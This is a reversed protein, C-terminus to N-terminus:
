VGAARKSEVREHAEHWEPVAGACLASTLCSYSPIFVTCHFKSSSNVNWHCLRRREVENRPLCHPQPTPRLLDCREANNSDNPWEIAYSHALNHLWTSLAVAPAHQTPTCCVFARIRPPPQAVTSVLLQVSVRAASCASINQQCQCRQRVQCVPALSCV